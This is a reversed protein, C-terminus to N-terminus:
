VLFVFRVSTMITVMKVELCRSVQWRQDGPPYRTVEDYSSANGQRYLAAQRRHEYWSRTSDHSKMMLVIMMVMVPKMMLVVLITKLIMVMTKGVGGLNRYLGRPRVLYKKKANTSAQQVAVLVLNEAQIRAECSKATPASLLKKVADLVKLSCVIL